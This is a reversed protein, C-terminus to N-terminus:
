ALADADLDKETSRQRPPTPSRNPIDMWLGKAKTIQQNSGSPSAPRQASPLPGPSASRTPGSTSVSVSSGPTRPSMPEGDDGAGAPASLVKAQLFGQKRGDADYEDALSVELVAGNNNDRGCYNTASFVTIVRGGTHWDVGDPVVEHARVIFQLNNETLFARAIDPGFYCTNPGRQSQQIGADRDGPTPDSWLLDQLLEAEARMNERLLQMVSKGKPISFVQLLNKVRGIGGHVCFMAGAIICAIPLQDFVQNVLEWIRAGDSKGLREECEQRFGYITNVDRDEHNGRLLFIRRPYRIKLAFLLAVVELSYCGRDVYDGMFLYQMYMIDGNPCFDVPYGTAHFFQLLDEYQGHIDGYIRIPASDLYLINAEAEFIKRAQLCLNELTATSLTFPQFGWDPHSPRPQLLHLITQHADDFRKGPQDHVSPATELIRERLAQASAEASLTKVLIDAIAANSPMLRAPGSRTEYGINLGVTAPDFRELRVKTADRLWRFRTRPCFPSKSLRFLFSVGPLENSVVARVFEDRSIAGDSPKKFVNTLLEKVFSPIMEFNNEGRKQLLDHCMEQLEPPGLQGRFHVDYCDFVYCARLRRWEDRYPSYEANKLPWLAAVVFCFENAALPSDPPGGNRHGARFYRAAKSEHAGRRIVFATFCPLNVGPQGGNKCLSNFKNALRAFTNGEYGVARLLVEEQPALM